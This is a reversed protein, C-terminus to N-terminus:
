PASHASGSETAARLVKARPSYDYDLATLAAYLAEMQEVNSCAGLGVGTRHDADGRWVSAEWGLFGPDFLLTVYGYGSTHAYAFEVAADGDFRQSPVFGREALWAEPTM